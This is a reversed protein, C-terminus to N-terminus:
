KSIRGMTLGVGKNFTLKTCSSSGGNAGDDARGAMILIVPCNGFSAFTVSVGRKATTLANMINM